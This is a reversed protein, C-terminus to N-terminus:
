RAGGPCKLIRATESFVATVALALREARSPRRSTRTRGRFTEMEAELVRLQDARPLLIGAERLASFRDPAQPLPATM